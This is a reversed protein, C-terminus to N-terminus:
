STALMEETLKQLMQAVENEGFIVDQFDRTNITPELPVKVLIRTGLSKQVFDDDAKGFPYEIKGDADKKSYAMNVVVGAIPIKEKKALVALRSVIEIVNRSPTTVLILSSKSGLMAFTSLLEDGTGPPLDVILFDIKKGWNTLSVLQAILDDKEEGRVPVPSNGTLLSVSMVKLNDNVKKPELGDKTSELPPKLGLYNPVSAGHIDLDLLGVNVGTKSLKLALGCAVFSKGVGGKGSGVLIVRGITRLKERPPSNLKVGFNIIKKESTTTKRM